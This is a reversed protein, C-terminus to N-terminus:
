RIGIKRDISRLLPTSEIFASLSHKECWVQFGALLVVGIAVEWRSMLCIACVALVAGLANSGADGLMVKGLRDPVLVVGICGLMGCTLPTLDAFPNWGRVVLVLSGFAALSICRGPRLDILNFSNASLAIFLGNLLVNVISDSVTARPPEPWIAARLPLNWHSLCYATSLSVLGGGVLKVLGTTIRKEVFLARVHGRYGGHGRDGCLDDILGLLGFGVVAIAFAYYQATEYSYHQSVILPFELLMLVGLGALLALGGIVPVTRGLFNHRILRSAPNKAIAWLLLLSIGTPLAGLITLWVSIRFMYPLDPM